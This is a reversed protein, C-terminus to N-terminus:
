AGSACFGLLTPSWAFGFCCGLRLCSLCHREQSPQIRQGDRRLPPHAALHVGFETLCLLRRFVSLMATGYVARLPEAGLDLGFSVTTAPIGEEDLGLVEGDLPCPLRLRHPGAQDDLEAGVEQM